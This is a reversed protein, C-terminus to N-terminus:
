FISRVGDELIGINDSKVNQIKAGTTYSADAFLWYSPTVSAMDVPHSHHVSSPTRLLHPVKAHNTSADTSEAKVQGATATGSGEGVIVPAASVLGTFTETHIHFCILYRSAASQVNVHPSNWETGIFRHSLAGATLDTHPHIITPKNTHTIIFVFPTISGSRKGLWM